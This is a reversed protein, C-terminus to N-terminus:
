KVFMLADLAHLHGGVRLEFDFSAYWDEESIGLLGQCRPVLSFM